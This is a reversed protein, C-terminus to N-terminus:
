DSNTLDKADERQLITELCRDLLTRSETTCWHDNGWRSQSISLAKRFLPEAEQPKGNELLVEGLKRFSELVEPHEDKRLAQRMDMAQRLFSEAQDPKGAEAYLLGLFHLQMAVHIHTEGFLERRMKLSALYLREAEDYEALKRKGDGLYFLTHAIDVHNEDLVRRQLRLAERFMAEAGTIDRKKSLIEGVCHMTWAIDQDHEGPAAQYLELAERMMKEAEDLEAAEGHLYALERLTCAVEPHGDGLLGRRIELAQRRLPIAKTFEWKETLVKAFQDLIDAVVLHWEGYRERYEQLAETLLSEAEQFKGQISLGYALLNLTSIVDPHEDGHAARLAQLAARFHVEAEDHVGLAMYCKGVTLRVDGEIDPYAGFEEEINGANLDLLDRLTVDHLTAMPTASSLMETLFQATLSAKNAEIVAIDAQEVARRESEIAGNRAETAEIAKCTAFIPGASLGVLAIAVGAVLARNRRAFKRVQYWGSDPRASIPEDDLYRRLDSSLTAASHYRRSKDKEMAKRVITEIDGRLGRAVSGLTPPEDEVITRAAEPISMDKTEYPPNGALLEYCIVGLAYVDSRTDLEAPNGQVQEPSMYPLTGILQGVDTKMTTLQVDADTVRSVGFDLVKPQAAQDVLINGPKLDRHIIGKEHAHQVADCIKIVLKLRDPTGLAKENAYATVPQGEVLEMAFFPQPGFGTDATGAELINAIGPHQLRGLVEAEHEFRRLVSASAIGPRIVKLAVSRRPRSQEARYVVGMGGRGLEGCIRYGGIEEPVTAAQVSAVSAAGAGDLEDAANGDLFGTARADHVLLSEVEARMSPDAGCARDLFPPRQPPPLSMAERFVAKIERYQEPTM